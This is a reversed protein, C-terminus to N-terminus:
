NGLRRMFSLLDTLSGFLMHPNHILLFMANSLIQQDQESLAELPRSDPPHRAATNGNRPQM